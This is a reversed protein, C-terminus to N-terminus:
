FLLLELLSNGSGLNRFMSWDHNKRRFNFVFGVDFQLSSTGANVKSVYLDNNSAYVSNFDYLKANKGINYNIGFEFKIDETLPVMIGSGLVLNLYYQDTNYTRTDSFISTPDDAQIELDTIFDRIGAGFEIYPHISKETNTYRVFATGGISSRSLKIDYLNPSLSPFFHKQSIGNGILVEGQLGLRWDHKEADEGLLNQTYREFSCGNSYEPTRGFLKYMPVGGTYKLSIWSQGNLPLVILLLIPLIARKFLM